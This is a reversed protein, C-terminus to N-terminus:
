PTGSTITEYVRKQQDAQERAEQLELQVNVMKTVEFVIALVGDVNNHEDRRPQYNFTFYRDKTPGGEYEAVPILLENMDYPEGNHYVNLLIEQLPTGVLEPLAEFIPRGLIKRGPLLAQYAPNALEYVLQPGSLICIGAPAQMFFSKLRDREKAFAVKATEEKQREVVQRTNELVWVAVKIVKGVNDKIPAYVFTVFIMEEQGHRILMLEVEDAYYAEGTTVVNALAEEYYPRTEAFADWFFRGFIAEYPKGAVEIFKDNVIEATLTDANLICVGIPAHLVTNHLDQGINLQM